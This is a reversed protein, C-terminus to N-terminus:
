YGKASWYVGFTSTSSSVLVINITTLSVLAAGVSYTTGASLVAGYTAQSTLGVNPFAIPLTVNTNANSTLTSLGWQEIFYGTPSNPDPYKKWGNGGLSSPFDSLKPVSNAVTATLGHAALLGAAATLNGSTDLVLLNVTGAANNVVMGSPGAYVHLYNDNLLGILNRATGGTDVSSAIVNNPLALGAGFTQLATWTHALAYITTWNAGGTDPNSTNNDVTSIWAMGTVVVSALVAGKPYGGIATAFTADYYLPAGAQHWQNWSTIKNLLGNFDQGWPWSGGAATTIFCNPPFGDTFSAAGNQVGIQSAQPPTRIYAGGASYAWPTPFKTPASAALM